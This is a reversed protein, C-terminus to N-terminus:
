LRGPSPHSLPPPSHRSALGGILAGVAPAAFAATLGFAKGSSPAEPFIWQRDLPVVIDYPIGVTYGNSFVMHASRIQLEGDRDVGRITVRAIQGQVFTDPPIVMKDGAVVPATTLLYAMDGPRTTRTSIPRQLALPIRTGPPVVVTPQEAPPMQQPQNQAAPPQAPPDQAFCRLVALLLATATLSYSRKYSVPHARGSSQLQITRDGCHM